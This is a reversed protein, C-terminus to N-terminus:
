VGRHDLYWVSIISVSHVCSAVGTLSVNYILTFYILMSSYSLCYDMPCDSILYETSNAQTHASMWTNAPRKIASHDIYCKDIYNLLIPDCDCIGDQLTFGIPCPLLQVYFGDYVRNLFPSATLFLECRQYNSIITYNVTNSNKGIFSILQSQQAIKCTSSPLNINNEETYLVTSADNTCVNCLNTQLTQGPYVSGLIGNACDIEKNQSCSCIHTRYDCNQDDNHIVLKNVAEPSYNYSATLPLWKCHFIFHCFSVSCNSIQSSTRTFHLTARRNGTFNIIYHTQLHKLRINYNNSNMTIYQFLCFPYPQNYEESLTRTILKSFYKNNIFTINTYEM